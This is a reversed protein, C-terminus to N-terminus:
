KSEWELRETGDWTYPLNIRATYWDMEGNRDGWETAEDINLFPGVVKMGDFINGVLVVYMEYLTNGRHEAEAVIEDDDPLIGTTDVNMVLAEDANIITGTGTHVIFTTQDLQNERM